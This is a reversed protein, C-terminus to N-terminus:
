GRAFVVSLNNAPMEVVEPLALGHRGAAEIVAELHARDETATAIM